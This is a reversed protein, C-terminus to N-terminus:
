QGDDVADILFLGGLIIRRQRRDFVPLHVAEFTAWAGGAAQVHGAAVIPRGRRLVLRYLRRAQGAQEPAAFLTEVPRGVPADGAGAGTGALAGTTGFGADLGFASLIASGITSFVFDGPTGTTTARVPLVTFLNKVFPSLARGGMDEREPLALRGRGGQRERVRRWHAELAKTEPFQAPVDIEATWRWPKRKTLFQM